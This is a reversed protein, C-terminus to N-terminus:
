GPGDVTRWRKKLTAYTPMAKENYLQFLQKNEDSSSSAELKM